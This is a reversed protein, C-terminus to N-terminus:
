YRTSEYVERQTANFYKHAVRHAALSDFGTVAIYPLSSEDQQEALGHIATLVLDHQGSHLAGLLLARSRRDGSITGLAQHSALWHRNPATRARRVV